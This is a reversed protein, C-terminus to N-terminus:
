FAGRDFPDLDGAGAPVSARAGWQGAERHEVSYWIVRRDGVGGASGEVRAMSVGQCSRKMVRKKYTAVWHLTPTRTAGDVSPRRDGM